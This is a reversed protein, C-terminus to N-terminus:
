LRKNIDAGIIAIYKKGYRAMKSELYKPGVGESAESWVIGLGVAEHWREAYPMEFVLTISSIRGKTLKVRSITYEGRLDGHLHPTRPRVNDADNKLEQIAERLGDDTGVEIRNEARIMGQNFKTWDFTMSAKSGPRAM